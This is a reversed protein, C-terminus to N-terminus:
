ETPPPPPPPPAAPAFVSSLTATQTELAEATGVAADLAAQQAATLVGGALEAALANIQNKLDTVGGSILPLEVALKAEAAQLRALDDDFKAMKSELTKVKEQLKVFQKVFQFNVAAEYVCTMLQITYARQSGGGMGKLGNRPFAQSRDVPMFLIRRVDMSAKPRNAATRSEVPQWFVVDMLVGAGGTGTSTRMECYTLL